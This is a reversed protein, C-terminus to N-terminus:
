SGVRELMEPDEENKFPSAQVNFMEAYVGGLTMLEQHTGSEIIRGQDMVLIQDALRASGFRHTIFIGIREKMLDRFLMFLDRESIPDLFSSPEDLIYVDANRMFARAIAIRQWQGGSLQHGDEFWRGLQTGLGEPLQEIIDDIAAYKAANMIESDNTLKELSGFGINHRASMEYQVFDQFVVGIREQFERLDVELLNRGNVKMVGNYGGYLQMLLKVLTSKGSGNKGVLAVTKGRELTLSVNQVADYPKGPYRFSVNELSIQEIRMSPENCDKSQRSLQLQLQAPDSSPLTLFLFLQDLYRNNQTFQVGGQVISHMQSQTLTIAQIYGFLSGILIEGMYAEGLALGILWMLVVLELLDYILTIRMRKALMRRDIIFFSQMLDRYRQLLFSGLKFMKIEKFSRDNTLLYTTYWTQRSLPTREMDIKFQERNIKLVSYTSVTSILILVLMVWWKWLILLVASSIVTIVASAIGMMLTLMQYPRYGAEQQARKLQDSVTPNEYDQLGLTTSKKCIMVNLSQTIYNQFNGEVYRHVAEIINKFVYILMFIIFQKMLWAEGLEWAMSVSNLLNQTALLTVVPTVGQLIYFILSLITYRKSMQFMMKILKWGQKFSRWMTPNGAESNEQQQTM